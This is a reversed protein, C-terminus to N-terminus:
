AASAQGLSTFEAFAELRRAEIRKQQSVAREILAGLDMGPPLQDSAMGSDLAEWLAQKGRVGLLLLELFEFRDLPNELDDLKLRTVKESLWAGAKKILSEETGLHDILNQLAQQDEAIEEDLRAFFAGDSAQAARQLMDRAATSGALHDRLYVSLAKKDM